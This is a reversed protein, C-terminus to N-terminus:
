PQSTIWVLLVGNVADSPLKISSIGSGTYTGSKLPSGYFDRENRVKYTKGSGVIKEAEAKPITISGNGDFDIARCKGWNPQYFNYFCEVLDTSPTKGETSSVQDFGTASAPTVRAADTATKWTAFDVAGRDTGNAHLYFTGTGSTAGLCNGFRRPMAMNGPLCVPKM